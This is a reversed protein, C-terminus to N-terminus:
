HFIIPSNQSLILMNIFRSTFRYNCDALMKQTDISKLRSLANNQRQLVFIISNMIWVIGCISRWFIMAKLKVKLVRLSTWYLRLINNPDMILKLHLCLIIRLLPLDTRFNLHMFYTMGIIKIIRVTGDWITKSWYIRLKPLVIHKLIFVPHCRWSHVLLNWWVNM